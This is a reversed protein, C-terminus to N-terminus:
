PKGGQSGSGPMSGGGDGSGDGNQQGSGNNEGNQGGGGNNQQGSGDQDTTNNHPMPTGASPNNNGSQQGTGDQVPTCCTEQPTAVSNTPQPTQTTRVQSQNQHQNQSQFTEPEAPGSEMQRLHLQLMDRTQQLVPECAPCTGDQLQTMLQEQTQLRTRIQQLAVTQSANDLDAALQLARQIREQARITLEAPPTNGRSALAAMEETRTQAQQMLIEVQAVPDSILWLRVDESVLKMQYLPENPLADQAASVTASGGFLLGVIVLTSLILKMAFKEKQQFITWIRLRRKDRVSVAEALFRARARAAIQPNRARVPKLEDLLAIVQANYEDDKLM